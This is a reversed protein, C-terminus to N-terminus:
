GVKGLRHVLIGSKLWCLDIDVVIYFTRLFYPKNYGELTRVLTDLNQWFLVIDAVIHSIGPLYLSNCGVVAQIHVLTCQHMWALLINAGICFTHFCVQISHGVEKGWLSSQLQWSPLTNAM